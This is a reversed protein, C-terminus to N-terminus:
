RFPQPQRDKLLACAMTGLRFPRCRARLFGRACAPHGFERVPLRQTWHPNAGGPCRFSADTQDTGRGGEDGRRVLGDSTCGRQVAHRHTRLIEVSCRLHARVPARVCSSTWCRAGNHGRRRCAGRRRADRCPFSARERVAANQAGLRNENPSRAGGFRRFGDSQSQRLTSCASISGFGPCIDQHNGRHQAERALRDNSAAHCIVAMGRPVFSNISM